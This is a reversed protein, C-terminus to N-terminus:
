RCNEGSRISGDPMTTHCFQAGELQLRGALEAHLLDARRLNAHRLDTYRLDARRLNARSLDVREADAYSLDARSLDASTLNAHQLQANRLDAQFLNAGALHADRLRARSLNAGPLHANALNANVLDAGSLNAGPCYAGPAIHCGNVTVALAGSSALLLTVGILGGARAISWRGLIKRIAVAVSGLLDQTPSGLRWRRRRRDSEPVGDRSANHRSISSSRGGTGIPSNAPSV